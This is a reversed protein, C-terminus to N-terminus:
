KKQKKKLKIRIMILVFIIKDSREIVFVYSNMVIVKM